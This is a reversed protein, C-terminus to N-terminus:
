FYTPIIMVHPFVWGCSFIASLFLYSQNLLSYVIKKTITIGVLVATIGLQSYFTTCMNPQGVVGAFPATLLAYVVPLIAVTGVGPAFEILFEYFFAAVVEQARFVVAPHYLLALIGPHSGVAVFLSQGLTCMGALDFAGTFVAAFLGAHAHVSAPM